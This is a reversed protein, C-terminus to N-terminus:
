QIDGKRNSIPLVNGKPPKERFQLDLGYAARAATRYREAGEWSVFRESQEAAIRLLDAALQDALYERVPIGEAEDQDAM